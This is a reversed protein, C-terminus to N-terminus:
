HRACHHQGPWPPPGQAAATPRHQHQATRISRIRPPVPQVGLAATTARRAARLDRPGPGVSAQGTLDLWSPAQDITFADDDARVPPRRWREEM